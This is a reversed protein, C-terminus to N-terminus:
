EINQIQERMQEILVKLEVSANSYDYHASKSGLTNAERNLEQMLFDLRRGVPEDSDLVCRVEVIHMELRDMEEAVDYKQALLLVEQELREVDLDMELEQARGLLKERMLSMIEPLRRKIERVLALASDCRELVITRLKEGERRRTDLVIDLTKDLQELLLKGIVEPDPTKQTIVGPWRLIDIANIPAPEPISTMITNASELLATVLDPNITLGQSGSIVAEFRLTCDVKGRSIRASIQERIRSELNRLEEPLRLSIELYRHNVTRIEWIIHGADGDYETRGFATMSATM